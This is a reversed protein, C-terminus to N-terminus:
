PAPTLMRPRSLTGGTEEDVPSADEGPGITELVDRVVYTQKNQSEYYTRTQIEALLGFTLFQVGTFVLLVGFLLLPRDGIAQHLFLRVFVLYGIM